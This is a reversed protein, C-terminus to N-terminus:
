TCARNSIHVLLFNEVLRPFIKVKTGFVFPLQHGPPLGPSEKKKHSPVSNSVGSTGPVQNFFFFLLCIKFIGALSQVM